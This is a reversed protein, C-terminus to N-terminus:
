GTNDSNFQLCAKARSLRVKNTGILLPVKATRGEKTLKVFSSIAILTGNVAVNM